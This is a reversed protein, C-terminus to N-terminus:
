QVSKMRSLKRPSKEPLVKMKQLRTVSLILNGDKLSRVVKLIQSLYQWNRFLVSTVALRELQEVENNLYKILEPDTTVLL